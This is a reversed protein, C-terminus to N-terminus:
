LIFFRDLLHGNLKFFFLQENIYFFYRGSVGFEKGDYGRRIAWM